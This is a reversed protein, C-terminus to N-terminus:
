GSFSVCAIQGPSIKAKAILERTSSCVARWWDEPDQEVFGAEPYDTQYEYLTSACLSGQEDYLVAKNGSTGLDHALLYTKM